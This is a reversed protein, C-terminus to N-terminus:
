RHMYNLYPAYLKKLDIEDVRNLRPNEAVFHSYDSQCHETDEATYFDHKKKRQEKSITSYHKILIPAFRMKDTAPAPTFHLRGRDSVIQCRGINRFFRAKLGIGGVSSPYDANYTDESDWLHIFGCLFTNAETEERLAQLNCFRADLREDVDLFCAIEYNFFSALDLLMNRNELDNFCERRKKAKLLLKEGSALEYTDDTSGDDLLIIGDFLPSMDRLFERIGDSENFSQVLLLLPVDKETCSGNIEFAPFERLYTELQQRADPKRRWDYVTNDFDRGWDDGNAQAQAPYFFKRIDGNSFSLYNSRRNEGSKNGIERHALMVDDMFFEEVGIMDFRARINNDDGGWKQFSEDYGRIQEFHKREAMISGFPISRFQHFNLPTVEEKENSFCVHGIAYHPFDPYDAFSKRLLFIADTVFESEPSCVMVYKKSAHRIGVNLARTPNRWEHPQENVIIKWNVFPYQKAYELLEQSEDPTDMVLVIEIGNREFYKRNRPFARRFEKMKKYFPIVVSVDFNRQFDRTAVLPPKKNMSKHKTTCFIFNAIFFRSKEIFFLNETRFQPLQSFDAVTCKCSAPPVM